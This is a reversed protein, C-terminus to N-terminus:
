LCSRTRTNDQGLETYMPILITYFTHFTPFYPNNTLSIATNYDSLYGIFDKFVNASLYYHLKLYLTSIYMTRYLSFFLLLVALLYVVLVDCFVSDM